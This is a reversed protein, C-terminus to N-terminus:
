IGRSRRDLCIQSGFLDVPDLDQFASPVCVRCRVANDVPTIRDGAVFAYGVIFRSMMTRGYFSRRCSAGAACRALQADQSLRAGSRVRSACATEAALARSRARGGGGPNPMSAGFPGPPIGPLRAGPLRPAPREGGLLGPLGPPRRGREVGSPLPPPPPPPPLLACAGCSGVTPDATGRNLRCVSGNTSRGCFFPPPLQVMDSGASSVPPPRGTRPGSCTFEVLGWWPKIEPSM